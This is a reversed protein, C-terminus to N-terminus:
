VPRSQKTVKASNCCWCGCLESYDLTVERGEKMATSSRDATRPDTIPQPPDAADVNTARGSGPKHSWMGNKDQRYWHYDRAVVTVEDGDRATAVGIFAMKKHTGAPCAADCDALPDGLGDAKAGRRLAECNVGPDPPTPPPMPRAVSAGPQARIGVGRESAMKNCAYNYCNNETQDKPDDNWKGADFEPESGSTPLGQATAGAAVALM